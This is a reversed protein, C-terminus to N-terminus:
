FILQFLLCALGFGLFLLSVSFLKAKRRLKRRNEYYAAILNAIVKKLIEYNSKNIYKKALMKPDPDRRYKETKYAVFSLVISVILFSVALFFFIGKNSSEVQFIIAIIIGSFTIALALKTDLQEVLEHQMRFRSEIIDHIRIISDVNNSKEQTM